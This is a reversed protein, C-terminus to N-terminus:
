RVEQERGAAIKLLAGLFCSALGPGIFVVTLCLLGGFVLLFTGTKRM